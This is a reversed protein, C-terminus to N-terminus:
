IRSCWRTMKRGEIRSKSCLCLVGHVFSVTAQIDLRGSHAARRFALPGSIALTPSLSARRIAASIALLTKQRAGAPSVHMVDRKKVASAAPHTGMTM